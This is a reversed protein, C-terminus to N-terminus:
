SATVTIRRGNQRIVGRGRLFAYPQRRRTNKLRDDPQLQVRIDFDQSRGIFYDRGATMGWIRGKPDDFTHIHFWFTRARPTM